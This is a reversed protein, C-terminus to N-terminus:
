QAHQKLWDQMAAIEAEQATIIQNAWEKVREDKGYQLVARAMDIAGQHHPIMARVFAVDPDAVQAGQMMPGDMMRMANMYAKTADSMGAAGAPMGQMMGGQMMQMMQQMMPMMAMCQEPMGGMMPAPSPTATPPPTAGTEPHHEDTQSLAAGPLIMLAAAVILRLHTKM